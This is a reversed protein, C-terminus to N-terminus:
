KDRYLWQTKEEDHCLIHARWDSGRVRFCRLRSRSEVDEESWQEIIKTVEIRKGMLFFARPSEEGRYGAYAQVEVKKGNM